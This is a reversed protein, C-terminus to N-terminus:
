APPRPPNGDIWEGRSCMLSGGMKRSMQRLMRHEVVHAVWPRVLEVVVAAAVQGGFGGVVFLVLAITVPEGERGRLGLRSVLADV